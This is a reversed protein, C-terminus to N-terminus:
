WLSDLRIYFYGSFVCLALSFQPLIDTIRRLPGADRHTARDSSRRVMEPKAISARSFPM